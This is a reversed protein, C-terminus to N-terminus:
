MNTCLQHSHAFNVGETSSSVIFLAKGLLDWQPTLLAPFSIPWSTPDRDPTLIQMIEM